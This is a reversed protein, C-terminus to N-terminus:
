KPLDVGISVGGVSVGDGGVSVGGVGVSVGVGGVSVGVGSGDVSVGGDGISAGGGGVSVAGTGATLPVGGVGPIRIAPLAGPPLITGAPFVGPPLLAGPNLVPGAPIVGDTPPLVSQLSDGGATATLDASPAVLQTTAVDEIEEAAADGAGLIGVAGTPGRDAVITVPRAVRTVPEDRLVEANGGGADEAVSVRTSTRRDQALTVRPSAVPSATRTVGSERVPLASTPDVRTEARTPQATLTPTDSGLLSLLRQTVDRALLIPSRLLIDGIGATNTAALVGVILLAAVLVPMRTRLM